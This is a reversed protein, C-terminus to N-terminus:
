KKYGWQLAVGAYYNRKAAVNYYRGGAANIDNGLSYTENLLNDGGFYFNLKLTKVATKWGIRSGLVHYASAAVSNADDLYIKSACYYTSNFYIGKKFQVDALISFTNKPVSPLTKGSFDATGKKFTGYKFDSLTYAPQITLRDLVNSHFTTTYDASLEIGKQKADGANVYYDANTSDKRSVLANYLKYYFATAEVHM